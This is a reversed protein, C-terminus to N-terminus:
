LPAGLAIGLLVRGFALANLLVLAAIGGVGFRAVLERRRTAVRMFSAVLATWICAHLAVIAILLLASLPYLLFPLQSNVVVVIAAGGALVFLFDFANQYIPQPDLERYLNANLMLYLLSGLTIGMLTGTMLRLVNQPEYLFPRQLIESLFSHIGDGAWLLFFVLLAVIYPIRPVQAARPKRVALYAVTMLGGLYLGTCRACLCLPAGAMFYSHSDWQHCVASGLWNAADLLWDM